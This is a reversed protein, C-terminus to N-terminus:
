PPLSGWLLPALWAAMADDEIRNQLCLAAVEVEGLYDAAAILADYCGVEFRETALDALADKVLADSFLGTTIGQVPGMM